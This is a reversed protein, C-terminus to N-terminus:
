SELVGMLNEFIVPVWRYIAIISSDQFTFAYEQLLILVLVEGNVDIFVVFVDILVVFVDFLRDFEAGKVLDCICVVFAGDFIYRRGRDFMYM